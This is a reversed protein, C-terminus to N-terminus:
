IRDEMASFVPSMVPNVSGGREIIEMAPCDPAKVCCGCTPACGLGYAACAYRNMYANSSSIPCSAVSQLCLCKRYQACLVQPTVLGIDCCYLGFKCLEGDSTGSGTTLGVQRPEVGLALCGAGRVCLCETSNHCGWTIDSCDIADYCCGAGFFVRANSSKSTRAMHNAASSEAAYLGDYQEQQHATM